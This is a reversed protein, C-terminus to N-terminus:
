RLIARTIQALDDMRNKAKDLITRLGEEQCKASVSVMEEQKITM